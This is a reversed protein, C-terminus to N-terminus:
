AGEEGSPEPYKERHRRILEAFVEDFSPHYESSSSVAGGRQEIAAAVRPAATGADEAIVLIERPGRQTIGIVGEIAGVTRADFAERTEIEIVDGGTGLRRLGEPTELAVLRGRALLAVEDCYEAEGVYQTTVLLTRGADRLRRLEEWISQRLIPDIGATPEDLFLIEPEHVLACALELRRQMGGSLKSARRSKVDWLEVLQLVEKVRKRRRRWLMGFLSGMFDVNEAATLEPYLVFQQPTYGLRERTQQQFSRPGEGLVRVTGSTPALSGTLLRVTSTKGSGSPGILGLITGRPITLSVDDVAPQKGFARTASAM